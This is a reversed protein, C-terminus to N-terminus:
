FCFYCSFLVTSFSPFGLEMLTSSVISWYLNKFNTCQKHKQTHTRRQTNSYAVQLHVRIAM